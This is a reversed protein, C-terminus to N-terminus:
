NYHKHDTSVFSYSDTNLCTIQMNHMHLDCSSVVTPGNINNEHPWNSFWMTCSHSFEILHQTGQPSSMEVQSKLAYSVKSLGTVPRGLLRVLM